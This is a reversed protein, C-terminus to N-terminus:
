GGREDAPADRPDVPQDPEQRQDRRVLERDDRRGSWWLGAAILIVPLLYLVSHYWHGSHALTM